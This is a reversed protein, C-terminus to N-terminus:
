VARLWVTFTSGAGEESRISLEGRHRNLIHKVIALGLGTGGKESQGRANVRYFRETLRHVHQRAIGPGTDAVAVGVMGPFRPDAEAVSLTVTTGSGGYKLANEILNSLVQALQVADGRVTPGPYDLDITLTSGDAAAAPLFGAVADEAIEHIDCLEQPEVHENLEIRNLSMLDEVLRQMRVAQKEMIDLFRERAEPDDKAHGRLTEVYARISAIPTKLEHSANAIFDSRTRALKADHTRDELVALVEADAGTGGGPLRTARLHLLKETGGQMSSFGIEAQRAGDIVEGVTDVYGPARFLNAYHEGVRLRPVLREAAANAYAIRGRLDILIMPQPLHDLFTTARATERPPPPAAPEPLPPLPEPTASVAEIVLLALAGSALGGLLIGAAGEGRLALLAALGVGVVLVILGTLVRRSM